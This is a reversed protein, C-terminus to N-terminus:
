RYLNYQHVAYMCAEQDGVPSDVGLVKGQPFMRAADHLESGTDSLNSPPAPRM